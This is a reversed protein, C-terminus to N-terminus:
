IKQTAIITPFKYLWYPKRINLSLEIKFFRKLISEIAELKRFTCGQDLKELAFNFIGIDPKSDAILLRKFKINQAINELVLQFESNTFHHITNIMIVLDFEQQIKMKRTADQILFRIKKSGYKKVAYNIYNTNIDIGLYHKPKIVKLLEGTGCGVELISNHPYQGIINRVVYFFDMGFIVQALNYCFPIDMLFNILKM